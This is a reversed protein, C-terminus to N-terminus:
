PIKTNARRYASPSLGTEKEFCSYFHSRNGFSLEDSIEQISMRSGSLLLKALKIKERRIYANVSYGTEKKFKHSFYYETYGLRSALGSIDPNERIHMAIYDCTNQIQPSLAANERTRRVREVYDELMNRALNSVDATTQCDELQKTYYDNLTYAISSNLGGEMSARSCLTLLVLANNKSERLNDGSTAKEGSSLAISQNLAEKYNPNGERIMSVLNQEALWIGRHEGSILLIDDPGSPVGGSSFLVEDAGIREGTVAYHLMVAYQLLVTSPIIPCENIQRFILSRLKVSIHYSDLKKRILLQTNKGTFAPGILHIRHLAFDQYEFAAIWLLGFSTDLILPSHAGRGTHSRLLESFGLETIMEAASLEKPSDTYLLKLDRDYSWLFVNYNCRVLGTFFSLRENIDM